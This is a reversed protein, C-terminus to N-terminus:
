SVFSKKRDFDLRESDTLKLKKARSPANAVIGGGGGSTAGAAPTITLAGYGPTTPTSMAAGAAKHYTTRSASSSSRNSRPGSRSNGGGGGGGGSGSSRHHHGSGGTAASKPTYPPIYAKKGPLQSPPPAETIVPAPKKTESVEGLAPLSHPLINKFQFLCWLSIPPVLESEGKLFREFSDLFKSQPVKGSMGITSPQVVVNCPPPLNMLFGLEDDPAVCLVKCKNQEEEEEQQQVQGAGAAAAMALVSASASPAGAQQQPQQQQQQQQQQINLMQQHYAQMANALPALTMVPAQNPDWPNM